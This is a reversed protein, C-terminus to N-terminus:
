VSSEGKKGITIGSRYKKRRKWSGVPENTKERKHHHKHKTPRLYVSKRDAVVGAVANRKGKKELRNKENM